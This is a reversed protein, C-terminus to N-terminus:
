KPTIFPGSITKWCSQNNYDNCVTVAEVQIMWINRLTAGFSNKADLQGGVEWKNVDLMTTKTTGYVMEATSPSKLREVTIAYAISEVSQRQRFLPSRQKTEDPFSRQQKNDAPWIWYIFFIIFIIILILGTIASKQENENMNSFKQISGSCEKKQM